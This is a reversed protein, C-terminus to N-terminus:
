EAKWSVPKTTWSGAKPHTLTVTITYWRGPIPKFTESPRPSVQRFGEPVQGVLLELGKARVPPVAVVQWLPQGAEQDPVDEVLESAQIEKVREGYLGFPDIVEMRFANPREDLKQLRSPAKHHYGCGIMFSMAVFLNVWLLSGRVDLQSKEARFASESPHRTTGISVMTNEEQLHM